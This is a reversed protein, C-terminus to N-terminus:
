PRPGGNKLVAVHLFTREEAQMHAELDDLLDALNAAVERPDGDLTQLLVAHEAAHEELMRRARLAGLSPEAQLFPTLFAEERANHEEVAHRLQDIAQCFAAIDSAGALVDTALSQATAALERLRAHQELLVLRAHSPRM